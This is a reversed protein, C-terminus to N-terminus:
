GSALLRRVREAEQGRRQKQFLELAEARVARAQAPDVEALADGLRDLVDAETAADTRQRCLELAERYLRVAEDLDGSRHALYGLSLLCRPIGRLNDDRQCRALADLCHARATDLEGLQATYWGVENLAHAGSVAHLEEYLALAAQSHALAQQYDKLQAWASAVARHTHAQGLRDDAAQAAELGLQLQRLAEDHQGLQTCARGLHRHAQIRCRWDSLHAAAATGAQWMTLNDRLYGQSLNYSTLTWALQWVAAHWGMEVALQQAAMLNAHEAAFWTKAEAATEPLVPACGELLAPLEIPMHHRDILVDAGHALHCYFDLLRRPALEWDQESLHQRAVDGAYLRVLDHMRYREHECQVLSVDVLENLLQEVEAEPLGALSAAAAVSIDQGPAMGLLAFMRAEATPLAQYSCSLVTQVSHSKGGDLAALRRSEEKLKKAMRALSVSSDRQAAVISLALPLGACWRLLEATAEPEAALQAEGLRRALLARAAEDDLVTVELPHFPTSVQLGALRDRSTILVTCTPNGPLLDIVQEGDRANDLVVLMRRGQLESRYLGILAHEEAPIREPPVNLANLFGRVAEQPSMPEQRPDFGRLDVFLQGDPFRYANQHAWHVALWTKGVGGAGNLASIAVTAGETASGALAGNLAALEPERGTFTSPSPPLQQPRPWEREAAFWVGGHIVGAQVSPGHVPGNVTNRVERAASM